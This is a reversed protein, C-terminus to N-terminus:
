NEHINEICGFKCPRASKIVDYHRWIFNLPVWKPILPYLLDMSYVPLMYKKYPYWANRKSFGPLPNCCGGKPPRTVFFVEPPRPNFLNNWIWKTSKDFLLSKIGLKFSVCTGLSGTFASGSRKKLLSWKIMFWLVSAWAVEYWTQFSEMFKFSSNITFYKTKIEFSLTIFQVTKGTLFM